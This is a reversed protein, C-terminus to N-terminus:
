ESAITYGHRSVTLIFRPTRINPEIKHRLNKIHMRVLDPSGTDSPYDWVERLLRESSLIQDPHTMLHYLLDFEVPTLLAKKEGTDVEHTQCDLTLAGITIQLPRSEPPEMRARRLIAKVRLVLERIDFPKTLYDDAGAEFGEVRDEVRSLATMFLIPVSKLVPDRRLERCAELGSMGPMVIDLIILDPNIRRAVKLAEVASYCVRVHHERCLAREIIRAVAEEDDVVLIEAM